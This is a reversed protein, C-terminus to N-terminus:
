TVLEQMMADLSSCISHNLIRASSVDWETKGWQEMDGRTGM